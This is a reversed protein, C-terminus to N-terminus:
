TTSAAGLGTAEAPGAVDAGEDLHVPEAVPASAVTICDRGRRKSRYLAADAAQLLSDGDGAHLPMTAVGVSLTVDSLVPSTTVARRAKDAVTMANEAGCGPLVLAFEDGGFRAATDTVRVAGALARGVERLVEDGAQHGRRDNIDKFHDIDVVLLSLPRGNGASRDVEAALTADFTRRNALGTLGDRQALQRHEASLRANRLVLTAHASFQGLSALTRMPLRDGIMAHGFALAVVGRREGDPGLPLVIVRHARPLLHDLVPNT